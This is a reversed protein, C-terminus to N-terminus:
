FSVKARLLNRCGGKPSGLSSVNRCKRRRMFVDIIYSTLTEPNNCGGEYLYYSLGKALSDKIYFQDWSSDLLPIPYNYDGGIGSFKVLLKNSNNDRFIYRVGNEFTKEQLRIVITCYFPM